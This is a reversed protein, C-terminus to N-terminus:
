QADGKSKKSAMEYYADGLIVAQNEVEFCEESIALNIASMEMYGKAMEDKNVKKM